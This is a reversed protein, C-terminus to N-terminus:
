RHLAFCPLSCIPFASSPTRQHVSSCCIFAHPLIHPCLPPNRPNPNSSIDISGSECSPSRNLSPTSSFEELGEGRELACTHVFCVNRVSWYPPTALPSGSACVDRCTDFMTRELADSFLTKFGVFVSASQLFSSTPQSFRWRTETPNRPPKPRECFRNQVCPKQSAASLREERSRFFRVVVM